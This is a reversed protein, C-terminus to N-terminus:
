EKAWAEANKRAVEAAKDRVLVITMLCMLVILMFAACITAALGIRTPLQRKQAMAEAKKEAFKMVAVAGAVAGAFIVIFLWIYNSVM